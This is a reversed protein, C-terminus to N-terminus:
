RLGRVTATATARSRVRVSVSVLYVVRSAGALTLAAPV